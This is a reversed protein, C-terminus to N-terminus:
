RRPSRREKATAADSRDRICSAGAAGPAVAAITETPSWASVRRHGDERARTRRATPTAVYLDTRPGPTRTFAIKVDRSLRPGVDDLLQAARRRRGACAVARRAPRGVRHARSKAATRSRSQALHATRRSSASAIPKRRAPCRRTTSGLVHPSARVHDHAARRRARPSPPGRRARARGGRRRGANRPRTALSDKERIPTPTGAESFHDRLYQIDRALDRTSVYRDEPDKSLCRDVIWRLPAPVHSAVASLSAPEDRWVFMGGSTGDFAREGTFMEYLISGFSFQDSRYDIEGARAQEPSM